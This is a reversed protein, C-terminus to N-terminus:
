HHGPRHGKRRSYERVVRIAVPAGGPRPILYRVGASKGGDGKWAIGVRRSDDIRSIV